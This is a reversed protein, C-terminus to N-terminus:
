NNVAKVVAISLAQQTTTFTLFPPCPCVTPFPLCVCVKMLNIYRKTLSSPSSNFNFYCEMAGTGQTHITNERSHKIM